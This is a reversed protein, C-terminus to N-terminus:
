KTFFIYVKDLSLLTSDNYIAVKGKLDAGLNNILHQEAKLTYDGFEYIVLFKYTTSPDVSKVKSKGELLGRIDKVIGNRQTSGFKNIPNQQM